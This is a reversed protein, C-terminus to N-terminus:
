VMIYSVKYLEKSIGANTMLNGMLVFLPIISLGYDQSTEVALKTSMTLSAVYNYDGLYAFGFFGVIGMAFGIPMRFLILLFLIISGIGAILM